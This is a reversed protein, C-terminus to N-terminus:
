DPSGNFGIQLFQLMIGLQKCHGLMVNQLTHAVFKVYAALILSHM